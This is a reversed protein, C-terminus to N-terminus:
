HRFLSDLPWLCIRALPNGPLADLKQIALWLVQLVCCDSQCEFDFHRLGHMFQGFDFVPNPQYDIPPVNGDFCTSRACLDACNNSCGDVHM